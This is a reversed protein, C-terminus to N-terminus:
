RFLIQPGCRRLFLAGTPILLRMGAEGPNKGFQLRPKGACLVIATAGSISISDLLFNAGDDLRAPQLSSSGSRLAYNFSTLILQRYEPRAKRCEGAICHLPSLHSRVPGQPRA